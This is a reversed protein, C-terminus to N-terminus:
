VLHKPYYPNLAKFCVSNPYPSDNQLVQRFNYSPNGFDSNDFQGLCNIHGLLVLIHLKAPLSCLKSFCQFFTQPLDSPVSRTLIWSRECDRYNDTLIVLEVLHSQANLNDLQLAWGQCHFRNRGWWFLWFNLQCTHRSICWMNLCLACVELHPLNRILIIKEWLLYIYFRFWFSLLFILSVWTSGSKQSSLITCFYFYYFCTLELFANCQYLVSLAIVFVLFLNVLVFLVGVQSSSFPSCYSKPKYSKVCSTFHLSDGHSSGRCIAEPELGHPVFLWQSYM